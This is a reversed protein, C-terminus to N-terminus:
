GVVRRRLVSEQSAKESIAFSHNTGAGADDEIVRAGLRHVELLVAVTVQERTLGRGVETTGSGGGVQCVIRFEGRDGIHWAAQCSRLLGRIWKSGEHVISSVSKSLRSSGSEVVRNISVQLGRVVDDEREPNLALQGSLKLQVEAVESAKAATQQYLRICALCQVEGIRCGTM